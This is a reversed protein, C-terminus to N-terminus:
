IRWAPRQPSPAQPCPSPSSNERAGHGPRQLPTHRAPPAPRPAVELAGAQGLLGVALGVETASRARALGHATRAAASEEPARRSQAEFARVSARVDALKLEAESWAAEQAAVVARLASAEAALRPPTAGRKAFRRRQARLQRVDLAVDAAMRELDHFRTRPPPRAWDEAEISESTLPQHLLARQRALEACLDELEAVHRAMDPDLRGALRAGSDLVAEQAKLDAIAAKRAARESELESLVADWPGIADSSSPPPALATLLVGLVDVVVDKSAVSLEDM